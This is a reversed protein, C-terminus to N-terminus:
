AFRKHSHIEVDLATYHLGSGGFGRQRLSPSHPIQSLFTTSDIFSPGNKAAPRLGRCSESGGNEEKEEEEEEKEEKRRKTRYLRVEVTNNRVLLM